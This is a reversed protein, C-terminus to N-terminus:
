CACVRAVICGTYCPISSHAYHRVSRPRSPWSNRRSSSSRTASFARNGAGKLARLLGLTVVESPWLTAHPHKPLAHLHNDVKCFLAIIFDTTTMRKETCPLPNRERGAHLIHMIVVIYGIPIVLSSFVLVM